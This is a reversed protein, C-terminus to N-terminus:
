QVKANLDQIKESLEAYPLGASAAVSNKVVYGKYISISNALGADSLVAKELGLKAIKILYPMLAASFTRAAIKPVVATINSVCYHVVEDVVFTPNDHHTIKSTEVSGGLDIDVDVIVSGQRMTKVMERTVIKPTPKEPIHICAIFLDTIPLLEKINEDTSIITSINPFGLADLELLKAYDTDLIIVRAGLNAATIAAQKGVNGAGLITVQAPPSGTVRGLVIGRGGSHKQLYFAGNLVAMQGAIRSISQLLPRRNQSDKIFEYSLCTCGKEALTKALEPNNIFHFFSFFTQDPRVLEIEVPQHERIKLIIDALSYLKESSPVIQAGVREYQSDLAECFEGAGTEVYVQHGYKLIEKVLFPLAGVRKEHARLERPIGFTM